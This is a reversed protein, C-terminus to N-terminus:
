QFTTSCEKRDVIRGHSDFQITCTRIFNTYRQETDRVDQPLSISPIYGRYTYQVDVSNKELSFSANTLPTEEHAQALFQIASEVGQELPHSTGYLATDEAHMPTVCFAASAVLLLAASRM